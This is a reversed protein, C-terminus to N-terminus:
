FIVGFACHLSIKKFKDEYHCIGILSIHVIISMIVKIDSFHGLPIVSYSYDSSLPYPVFLLYAYKGLIVLSTALKQLIGEAGVIPNDM